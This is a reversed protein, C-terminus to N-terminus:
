LCFPLFGAIFYRHIPYNIILDQYNTPHDLKTLEFGIRVLDADNPLFNSIEMTHTKDAPSRWSGRILM